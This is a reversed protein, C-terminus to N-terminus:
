LPGRELELLAIANMSPRFGQHNELSESRIIRVRPDQSGELMWAISQIARELTEETQTRLDIVQLPEPPPQTRTRVYYGAGKASLKAIIWRADDGLQYPRIDGENLDNGILRKLGQRGGSLWAKRNRRIRAPWIIREQGDWLVRTKRAFGFPGSTSISTGDWRHRGRRKFVQLSRLRVTEHPHLVPLSCLIESNGERWEGIELGYFTQSSSNNIEIWDASREESRGQARHVVVRVSSIAKESVIGSLILTALLFSEILYIVNNATMLAVVGLGVTLILFWFGPRSVQLKRHFKRSRIRHLIKQIM